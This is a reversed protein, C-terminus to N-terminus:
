YKMTQTQMQRGITINIKMNINFIIKFNVPIELNLWLPLSATGTFLQECPVQTSFLSM